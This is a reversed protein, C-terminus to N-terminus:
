KMLPPAAWGNPETIGPKESIETPVQNPM